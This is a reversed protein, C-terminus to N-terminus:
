AISGDETVGELYNRTAFGAHKGTKPALSTKAAEARRQPLVALVWSIPKQKGSKVAERALGEFEAPTAGQAILATLRPDDLNIATPEIGGAVLAKGVLGRASVAVATEETGAVTGAVAGLVPKPLTTSPNPLPKTQPTPELGLSPGCVRMFAQKWACADPVQSAIKACAKRQNPNEPPNWELYKTVWVWKSAECRTAFGKASINLFGESVREASWQLDECAYGDPVRFVGAITGHQCTLLYMVLTRGDEDLSRFDASEWIRSFVKGYDRM